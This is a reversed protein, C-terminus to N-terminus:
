IAPFGPTGSAVTSRCWTLAAVLDLRTGFGRRAALAELAEMLARGFGQAQAEPNVVVDVVFCYM